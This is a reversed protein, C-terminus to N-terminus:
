FNLLAPFRRALQQKSPCRFSGAPISIAVDDPKERRRRKAPKSSSDNLLAIVTNTNLLFRISKEITSFRSLSVGGAASLGTTM